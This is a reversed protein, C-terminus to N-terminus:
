VRAMRTRNAHVRREVGPAELAINRPRDRSLRRSLRRRAGPAWDQNLSSSGDMATPIDHTTAAAFTTAASYSTAAVGVTAPTPISRTASPRTKKPVLPIAIARVADANLM